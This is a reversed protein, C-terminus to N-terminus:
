VVKENKPPKLVKCLRNVAGGDERMIRSGIRTFLINKISQAIHEKLPMGQGTEANTM